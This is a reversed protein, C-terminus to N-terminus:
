AQKALGEQFKEFEVPAMGVTHGRGPYGGSQVDQRFATLARIRETSIKRRLTRLDAYTYRSSIM